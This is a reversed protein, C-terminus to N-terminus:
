RQAAERSTMGKLFLRPAEVIAKVGAVPHSSLRTEGGLQLWGHDDQVIRATVVEAHKVGRRGSLSGRLQPPLGDRM